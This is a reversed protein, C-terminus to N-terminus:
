KMIINEIIVIGDQITLTGNITTFSPNDTFNEDFGGQLIITIPRNFLIDSTPFEIAQVQIIYDDACQGYASQILADPNTPPSGYRVPLSGVIISLNKFATTSIADTVQATFNFTAATAPNGSIEGTSSNITLGDPLGASVSWNYPLVGGTAALTQSYPTLVTGSPLSSTTISLPAIAVFSADVTCDATIPNTTYTNDVLNGGCTGSMVALYGADPTVTFSTTANHSVTQATSPNINGNPGASPTVTYSAACTATTFLLQFPLHTCDPPYCCYNSTDGSCSQPSIIIAFLDGNGPIFGGGNANADNVINLVNTQNVNCDYPSPPSTDPYILQWIATQVDLWNYQSTNNLIYNIKDWPRGAFTSNDTSSLFQVQYTANYSPFDLIYGELDACLGTYSINNLLSSGDAINSFTMSVYGSFLTPLQDCSGNDVYVTMSATGPPLNLQCASHAYTDWDLCAMIAAIGCIFIAGLFTAALISKIYHKMNKVRTQCGTSFTKKCTVRLPVFTRLAEFLHSEESRESHCLFPDSHCKTFIELQKLMRGFSLDNYFSLGKVGQDRRRKVRDWVIGRV